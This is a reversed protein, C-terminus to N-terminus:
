YRLQLSFQKQFLRSIKIFANKVETNRLTYIFPNLMPTVVTYMLALFKDYHSGRPRIYVIIVTGYFLCAVILHSSCTSFAKKKGASSNIKLVISIINIYLVVITTFPCIVSSIAASMTALNSILPDSCALNQLPALDCFFQDIENPGCYELIVTFMVPIFSIIFGAMWPLAGLVCCFMNNMITAYRLPNNIALYRDLVMLALLFCETEGLSNLAYMQMFCGILSISYDAKSLISLLKPITVSVFMIELVSFTTIFFYMPVQLTPHTRVLVIISINGLICIIYALLVVIFIVNHFAQLRYFGLLLFEKVITKNANQM